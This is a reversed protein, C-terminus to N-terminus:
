KAPRIRLNELSATKRDGEILSVTIKHSGPKKFEIIGMPYYQYKETAPQQNQVLSGESDTIRWVLKEKGRYSLDIYYSGPEKVNVTWTASANEGWDSIQYAHKWQGFKEMWQIKKSEAGEVEAFVTLLKSGINPYIGYDQIVKAQSARTNLRVEIVSAPFDVPKCPLEFVTWDNKKTFHVKKKKTGDLLYASVIESQLGPLFLKGDLPWEFVILFLSNDRTTADGWPFQKGWPSSEAGYVVQPYKILWKGSEKLFQCGAEPIKGKDDPGINFLYTGGRAVTSILNHLITETGKFNKDYWAYAWSDNNTDCTEWLGEINYAPIERDELSLYDGFGQGTRSSLLAGPQLAHVTHVLEEVLEKKMNGPTDFWIFDIKGYNSCIEKVQPLCKNYFYEEFTAPSGDAYVTPGVFGGPTTWDQYHSYYFGFGLGSERCADALEKMPDRRFPTSDVINFSDVGSKFMAFGDHHKSTIIVYKMGAEKALQVIKKGNYEQPNFKAAIAKYKDVPIGAMNANMIWESNGYYTKGDWEGAIFSYLGWHIFMGFKGEKFLSISANKEKETNLNSIGTMKDISLSAPLNEQAPITVINASLGIFIWLITNLKM